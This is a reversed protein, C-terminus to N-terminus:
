RANLSGELERELDEIAENLIAGAAEGYNKRLTVGAGRLIASLRVM